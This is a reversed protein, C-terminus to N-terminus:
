ALKQRPSSSKAIQGLIRLAREIETQNLRPFGVRLFESARGDFSFQGGHQLHVQQEAALETFRQAGMPLDARLWLGLGGHPLDYHLREGFERKLGEILTERRELYARRTRKAHRDFEGDEILEAVAAEVAHDGQRDIFRRLALIREVVHEPAVMYGIRLGPALVKALTGLYVVCKANAVSAIPLLPRGSWHFEHDYDDELIAFGHREALALLQLRRAATMSVTTPYQHHPTVYVARIKSTQLLAELKDVRMGAGDVPVAVLEAGALRFAQWVPPYGLAEVAIRDGPSCLALAAMFAAMQTGRTIVIENESALVGRTTRLQECLARVLRPHGQPSAYNLVDPERALVRRYARSLAGRPMLRPDPMGALLPLSKASFRPQEPLRPILAKPWPPLSLVSDHHRAASPRLKRPRVEPLAEAVFTGRARRTVIYGQRELETYAALATNRHVGLSLALQRSGPLRRGPRLRGRRIDEAIAQAIRAFLPAASATAEPEHPDLLNPVYEM